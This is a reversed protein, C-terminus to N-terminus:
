MLYVKNKRINNVFYIKINNLINITEGYPLASIDILINLFGAVMNSFKTGKFYPNKEALKKVRFFM